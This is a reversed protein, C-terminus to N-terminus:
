LLLMVMVIAMELGDFSGTFGMVAAFERMLRGGWLDDLAPRNLPAMGGFTELKRGAATLAKSQTQMHMNCPAHFAHPHFAGANTKSHSEVSTHM